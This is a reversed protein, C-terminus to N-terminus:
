SVGWYGQYCTPFHYLNPSVSCFRAIPPWLQPFCSCPCVHKISWNGLGEEWNLPILTKAWRPNPYVLFLMGIPLELGNQRLLMLLGSHSTIQWQFWSGPRVMQDEINIGEERWMPCEGAAVNPQVMWPSSSFMFLFATCNSKKVVQLPPM